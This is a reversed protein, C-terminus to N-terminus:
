VVALATIECRGCQERLELPGPLNEEAVVPAVIGIARDLVDRPDRARGAVHHAEHRMGLMKKKLCFVAYSTSSHSSNLRTSKRDRISEDSSSVASSNLTSFSRIMTPGSNPSAMLRSM